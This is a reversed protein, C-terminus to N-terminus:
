VRTGPLGVGPQPREWLVERRFTFLEAPRGGTRRERKGTGEVLGGKVVLRRFNQKHLRLGALSEVLRQLEFLTFRPPLLEFVVPRYKIKGRLRDLAVALIRRHDCALARGFRCDQHRRDREGALGAEYILEYREHVREQHWPAKDLGFALEVRQRREAQLPGCAEGCWADLAPIIEADLSSPRGERWDEWPFAEYFGLWRASQGLSDARQHVLALYVISIVRPGGLAENPDRDKDGFTYLQEVYGMHLGTQESVWRRLGRNLTKDELDLPGFPLAPHSTDGCKCLPHDDIVAIQPEDDIVTVIVASLGVELRTM